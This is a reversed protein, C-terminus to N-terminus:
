MRHGRCGEKGFAFHAAISGLPRVSDPRIQKTGELALCRANARSGIRAPRARVEFTVNALGFVAKAVPNLQFTDIERQIGNPLVSRQSSLGTNLLKIWLGRQRHM